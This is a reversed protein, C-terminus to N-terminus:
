RLGEDLVTIELEHCLFAVRRALADIRVSLPLAPTHGREVSYDVIIPNTQVSRDQLLGAMKRVHAPDCQTDKDGSVFLTSPYNVNESVHHYPSYAHLSHFDGADAVTGYEERWKRADGFQEFRVMDLIPAISLVARFLDPRQTMAAAVLLGSNSGGFIAMRDPQSIGRDCLWVAAAIFDDYAVQRNRRRAAEHWERGFESGGRLSPLAFVCGLELMLTVLVSFRPMMSAGFGGYGTLIAPRCEDPRYPDLAVLWMPIETGDKSPYSVRQIHYRSGNNANERQKWPLFSNTTASYELISPPESFSEHLFFLADSGGSYSQLLGFSGKPQAPLVGLFEGTWAWSHFITACDVQYSVYLRDEALHIGGMPAKWEPVIVQGESGDEFLEVVRGNPAGTSLAVYIKGHHLVPGYPPEKDRFVTHWVLDASRSAVCLDVKFGAGVDRVYLAGLNVNDSILYLRSRETRPMSLLVQGQDSSDEFLRYRIEHPLNEQAALEPEHCYYFGTNDSQFALGRAYGSKHLGGLSRGTDVDAFRVVEAREGGHKLTYALIRGDESIRHIAVAAYTGHVSPDVLVREAGTGIDRVCICAQEQGKKRRRFFCRNGLKAPQEIVEVNLYENVRSRLHDLDPLKSFYDDHVRKQADLWEQTDASTRDELWRYPDTVTVGHYVDIAPAHDHTGVPM